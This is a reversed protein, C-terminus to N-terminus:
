GARIYVRVGDADIFMLSVEDSDPRVGLRAPSGPDAEGHPDRIPELGSVTGNPGVTLYGGLQIEPDGDAIGLILLHLTGNRTSVVEVSAHVAGGIEEPAVLPLLVEIPVDPLVIRIGTDDLELSFREGSRALMWEVPEPTGGPETLAAPRGDAGWGYLSTGDGYVPYWDGPADFVTVQDDRMALLATGPAIAVLTGDGLIHPLQYPFNGNVLQDADLDVAGLYGGGATFHALRQKAGDLFWWTGDAMRAGYDPGFLLGDGSPSVGLTEPTDGYPIVFARTWLVGLESVPPLM